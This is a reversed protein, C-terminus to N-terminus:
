NSRTRIGSLKLMQQIEELSKGATEPMFCYVLLVNVFCGVAFFCFPVFMGCYSVAVQFAKSFVIVCAAFFSFMFSVAKGKVSASFVESVIIGPVIGLGACFFVIYAMMGALPILKLSSLDAATYESCYFYVSEVSLLLACGLCSAIMLTRRAFSAALIPSFFIAFTQFGTLLIAATSPSVSGDVNDFIYQTYHTFGTIGSLQHALRTGMALLLGRRNSNIRFLDAYEAPEGIQRQVDAKLQSLEKDVDSRGRLKQLSERAEEEKRKSLLYYPTEPLYMFTGLVALPVILSVLATTTISVYSGIVNALFQGFYIGISVISGLSGRYKTEVTEAVYIPVCTYTGADTIGVLVRAACLMTLSDACAILIWSLAQLIAVIVVIPKRGISDVLKGIIPSSVIGVVSPIICLISVAEISMPIPSSTSTLILVAPSCWGFQM